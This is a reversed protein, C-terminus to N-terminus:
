NLIEYPNTSPCDGNKKICNAYVGEYIIECCCDDELKIM